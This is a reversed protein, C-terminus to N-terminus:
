LFKLLQGIQSIILNEFINLKLLKRIKLIKFNPFHAFEFVKVIQFIWIKCNSFNDFITPTSVIGLLHLFLNSFFSFFRYIM